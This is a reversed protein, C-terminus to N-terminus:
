YIPTVDVKLRITAGPDRPMRVSYERGNYSYTVDYGVLKEEQHYRNVVECREVTDFYTVTERNNRNTMDRAISGGLLAGVVAGVRQNSKKHGLENGIAGGIVAGLLDPTRSRSGGRDYHETRAVEETWCQREPTSIEITKYVPYSDIVFAEDYSSDSFAPGAVGTLALGLLIKKMIIDESVSEGSDSSV